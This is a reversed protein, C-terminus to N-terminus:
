YGLQYYSINEFNMLLDSRHIFSLLKKDQIMEIDDMVAEYILENNADFVKVMPLSLHDFETLVDEEKELQELVEAELAAVKAETAEDKKTKHNPEANALSSVMILAGMAIGTILKLKGTINNSKKM